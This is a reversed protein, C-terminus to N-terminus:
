KPTLKMVTLGSSNAWYVSTNDIGIGYADAQGTILTTPPGGEIPVKMVAGLHPETWYVSTSDVVVAYPSYNGSVLITPSGGGIPAKMVMGGTQNTWYVSTSDVTIGHPGDQATALTTPAGGGIPAKMVTGTANNFNTWYVSTADVAIGWPNSQGSTIPTPTTGSVPMRLVDGSASKLWYVNTADLALTNSDAGRAIITNAGGGTSVTWLHSLGIEIFYVTGASVGIAAPYGIPGLEGSDLRTATGGSKPVKMVSGPSTCNTWYVSTDDLAIGSPGTQGSALTILCRGAKCSAVSPLTASCLIGCGGCNNPDTTLDACTSGCITGACNGGTGSSGGTSTGGTGLTGGTQSAGGLGGIGTTGGTVTAGGSATIGGSGIIGGSGAIGGTVMTGGANKAGGAAATGGTNTMGGLGTLGGTGTYGGTSTTGGVGATGGMGTVGGTGTTGGTGALGGTGNNNLDAGLYPIDAAVDLKPPDTAVDGDIAADNRADGMRAPATDAAGTGDPTGTDRTPVVSADVHQAPKTPDFPTLAGPPRIKGVCVGGTTCTTTPDTCPDVRCEAALFLKLLRAQGEIFGVVAEEHVVPNGNLFGTTVIDLTGTNDTSEVLATRLPLINGNIMSYPMHQTKGHATVAIDVKDLEGPVALNSDVEVVLATRQKGRCSSVAAMTLVTFLFTRRM